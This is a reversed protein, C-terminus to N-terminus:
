WEVAICGWEVAVCGWSLLKHQTPSAYSIFQQCVLGLAVEPLSLWQVKCNSLLLDETQFQIVVSLCLSLCLSLYKWLAPGAVLTDQQDPVTRSKPIVVLCLYDSSGM